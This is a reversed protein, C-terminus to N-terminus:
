ATAGSPFIMRSSIPFRAESASLRRARMVAQDQDCFVYDFLTRVV